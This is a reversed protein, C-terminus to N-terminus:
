SEQSPAPLTATNPKRHTPLVDRPSLEPSRFSEFMNLGLHGLFFVSYLIVQPDGRDSNQLHHTESYTLLALKHISGGQTWATM